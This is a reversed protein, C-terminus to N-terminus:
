RSAGRWALEFTMRMVKAFEESEVVVAFPDKEHFNLIAFKNGYIWYGTSIKKRVIRYDLMQTTLPAEDVLVRVHIGARVRREVFDPFYWKLLNKMAKKASVGLLEKTHALVDESVTKIGEKGEYFMVAPKETVSQRLALMAPLAEKVKKEKEQLLDVFKQPPAAEFYTKKEKVVSIM